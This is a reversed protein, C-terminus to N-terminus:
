IKAENQQLFAQPVQPRGSDGAEFEENKSRVFADPSAARQKLTDWVEEHTPIIIRGDRMGDALIQATEQQSKVVLHSGPARMLYDTSFHKMGQMSTTMVPGPCLCSVRIGKPMLYLALNESMSIVAAKSAAYHIRSSAFPYLGAFSGTNVIYGSGRSLMRPLFLEISRVMGFFNINMVRQWEAVPIDEPNGGSLIGANNMVIDVSGLQREAQDATARISTDSGVDCHLACAERGLKRVEAATDEAGELDLDAVAIRAGRRAFELAIARGINRGGGIIIAASGAFPFMTGAPASQNSSRAINNNETMRDDGM